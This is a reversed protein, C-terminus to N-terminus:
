VLQFLQGAGFASLDEIVWLRGLAIEISKLEHIDFVCRRKQSDVFLQMRRNLVPNFFSDSLDNVIVRCTVLRQSQADSIEFAIKPFSAKPQFDTNDVPESAIAYAEDQRARVLVDVIIEPM